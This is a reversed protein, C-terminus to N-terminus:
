ELILINHIDEDKLTADTELVRACLELLKSDSMSKLSECLRHRIRTLFNSESLSNPDLRNKAESLYWLNELVYFKDKATNNSFKEDIKIQPLTKMLSLDLEMPLIMETLTEIEGSLLQQFQDLLMSSIRFMKPNSIEGNKTIVIHFFAIKLENKYQSNYDCLHALLTSLQTDNEFDFDGEVGFILVRFLSRQLTRQPVIFRIGLCDEVLGLYKKLRSIRGKEKKMELDNILRRPKTIPAFRAGHEIYYSSLSTIYSYTKKERKKLLLTDLYHGSLNLIDDFVQQMSITSESLYITNCHLVRKPGSSGGFIEGAQNCVNRLHVEWKEFTEIKDKITELDSKSHWNNQSLSRSTALINKCEEQSQNLSEIFKRKGNKGTLILEISLIFSECFVVGKKRVEYKQEIWEYITMHQYPTRCHELWISNVYPLFPNVYREREFRKRSDDCRELISKVGPIPIRVGNTCYQDYDPFFSAFVHIRDVSQENAPKKGSNYVFYEIVLDAGEEYIELTDTKDKLISQLDERHDKILNLYWKQNANALASAVYASDNSDLNLVWRRFEKYDIQFVPDIGKKFLNQWSLYRGLGYLKEASLGLVEKLPTKELFFATYSDNPEIPQIGSLISKLHIEKETNESLALLKSFISVPHWPSLELIGPELIQNECLADYGEKNKILHDRADFALLGAVTMNKDEYSANILFQSIKLLFKERHKRTPMHFLGNAMFSTFFKSDIIQFLNFATELKSVGRGHLVECLHESRVPHLGEVFYGEQVFIHYEKHLADLAVGRDGDFGIHEGIYSLLETADIRVECLDAFSILRLIEIKGKGDREGYLSKVQENIREQIMDGFSLLYIYELLLGRDCTQEWASQWSHISEHLVREQQFRTFIQEAELRTMHIDVPELSIHPINVGGYRYWDEQRTTVLYRVPLHGTRKIVDSWAQLQSNLGDIVVVPRRGSRVYSELVEVISGVKEEDQCWHLEFITFGSSEMALATQWALTSKGQGSSARLVVAHKSKLKSIITEEWQPRHVPFGAGIHWPKAAKGSFYADRALSMQEPYYQFDVLQIWNYQIAPNIPGKAIFRKVAEMAEYFLFSDITARDKSWNLVNWGLANYFLAENGSLVGSQVLLDFIRSKLDQENVVQIRVSTLFHKLDFNRWEDQDSTNTKLFQDFRDKWYECQPHSLNIKGQIIKEFTRMHGDKFEQNTIFAFRSNHDLAFVPMFKQIIEKQWFDYASMKESVYKVQIYENNNGALNIKAGPSEMAFDIDEIGELTIKDKSPENLGFSELLSVLSYHAQFLFGNIAHSGGTRQQFITELTSLVIPKKKAQNSRTRRNRRNKNNLKKM